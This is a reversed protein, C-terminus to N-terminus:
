QGIIDAFCIDITVSSVVAKFRYNNKCVNIFKNTRVLKAVYFITLVLIITTTTITTATTLTSVSASV